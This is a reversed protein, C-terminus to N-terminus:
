TKDSLMNLLQELEGHYYGARQTMFELERISVGKVAIVITDGMFQSITSFLTDVEEMFGSIVEESFHKKGSETILSNSENFAKTIETTEFSHKQITDTQEQPTEEQEEQPLIGQGLLTFSFSIFLAISPLLQLSRLKM